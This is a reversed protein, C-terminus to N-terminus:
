ILIDKVLNEDVKGERIIKMILGEKSWVFKSNMKGGISVGEKKMVDLAEPAWLDFIFGDYTVVKFVPNMMKRVEYGYIRVDFPINDAKKELFGKSQMGKNYNIPWKRAVKILNEDQADVAFGPLAWINEDNGAIKIEVKDIQPWIILLKEPIM